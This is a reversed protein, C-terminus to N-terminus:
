VFIVRRLPIAFYLLLKRREVVRTAHDELGVLLVSSASLPDHRPASEIPSRCASPPSLAASVQLTLILAEWSKM